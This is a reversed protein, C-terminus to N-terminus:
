SAGNAMDAPVHELIYAIMAENDNLSPKRTKPHRVLVIKVMERLTSREYEPLMIALQEPGFVDCLEYPDLPKYPNFKKPDWPKLPKIHDLASPKIMPVAAPKRRTPARKKAGQEAQAIQTFMETITHAFAPNNAAEQAAVEALALTLIKIDNAKPSIGLAECLEHTAKRTRDIVSLPEEPSEVHSATLM